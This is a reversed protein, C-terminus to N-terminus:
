KCTESVDKQIEKPQRLQLTLLYNQQIQQLQLKHLEQELTQFEALAEERFKRLTHLEDTRMQALLHPPLPHTSTSSSSSGQLPPPSTYPLKHRSSNSYLQFYCSAYIHRLGNTQPRNDM